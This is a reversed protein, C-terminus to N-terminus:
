DIDFNDKGPRLPTSVGNSVTGRAGDWQVDAPGDQRLTRKTPAARPVSEATHMLELAVDTYGHRGENSAIASMITEFDLTTCPILERQTSTFQQGSGIQL